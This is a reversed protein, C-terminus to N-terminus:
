RTNGRGAAALISDVYENGFRKRADEVVVATAQRLASRTEPPLPDFQLGQERIKVFAGADQEAAMKWQQACAIAGAERIANQEGPQLSMFAKRNVVVAILDLVHASDSLYKQHEYYKYDWITSYPNELGDVDGHRLATFIDKLEIAVPNAGLARFTALQTESPLVRIKLGKFDDLTRLPRKANIVHRVGWQMWGVVTFGKAALKAEIAVGVPGELARAVQDYNEFVFPLAMAGIEPVLRSMNPAGIWTGFFNQIRIEDLVEKAGGLGPTDPILEFNLTGGSRREAEAKFIEMAQSTTDEAPYLGRIRLTTPQAQAAPALTLVVAALAAATVSRRFTM